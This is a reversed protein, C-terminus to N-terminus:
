QVGFSRLEIQSSGGEERLFEASRQIVPRLDRDLVLEGLNDCPPAVRGERGMPPLLSNTFVELRHPVDRDMPELRSKAHVSVVLSRRVYSETRARDRHEHVRHEEGRCNRVDERAKM